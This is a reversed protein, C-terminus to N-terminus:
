REMVYVSWWLRRRLEIDIWGSSEVSCPGTEIRLAALYRTCAGLTMYAGPYIGHGYEYLLLLLLSQLLRVSLVGYIETNLFTMKVALYQKTAPDGGPLPETVLRICALLLMEEGNLNNFESSFGSRLEKEPIFSIWTDAVNFFEDVYQRPPRHSFIYDRLEPGVSLCDVSCNSSPVQSPYGLFMSANFNTKELDDQQITPAELSM